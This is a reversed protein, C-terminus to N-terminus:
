SREGMSSVSALQGRYRALRGTAADLLAPTEPDAARVQKAAQALTSSLHSALQGLLDPHIREDICARSVQELLRAVAAREQAQLPRTTDPHAL